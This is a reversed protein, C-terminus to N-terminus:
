RKRIAEADNDTVWEDPQSRGIVAITRTPQACCEGDNRNILLGSGFQSLSIHHKLHGFVFAASPCSLPGQLTLFAEGVHCTFHIPPPFCALWNGRPRMNTDIIKWRIFHTMNLWEKSNAKDFSDPSKKKIKWATINSHFVAWQWSWLAFIFTYVTYLVSRM